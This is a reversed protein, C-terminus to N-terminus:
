GSVKKWQDAVLAQAKIVQATTAFQVHKYAAAPPLKAALAAPIKGRKALDAYRVPHTYGKLWLLQGEDSYLYEMWLKAANPNPGYKSIAQFYAGGYTGSKPVTITVPPNGALTDRDGLLLYDWRLTVSVIGKAFNGAKGQAPNFNGAQKLKVFFDIGPQINDLSGGHALAAAFVAAFAEGSTVPSDGLAVANRLKPSLLDPWDKPAEKVVNNNSMIAIAGWYDGYWAGNPDKLNNPITNWTTVKYPTWLGLQQGKLAYVPSVDVVDPGRNQGKFNQIAQIEQSSSGDPIADTITIGYRKSFTDMVEQYNAWGAHPLTIVNLKGEAKAAAVLKPDMGAEASRAFAPAGALIGSVADLGALGLGGAAGKQLLERRNLNRGSTSLV